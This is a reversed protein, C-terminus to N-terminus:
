KDVEPQRQTTDTVPDDSVVGSADTRVDEATFLEPPVHAVVDEVPLNKEMLLQAALQNRQDVLESINLTEMIKDVPVVIAIGMNVSEQSIVDQVFDDSGQDALDWHGHMLGLLRVDWKFLMKGGLISAPGRYVFVPSGSLGGISRCEILYADIRGKWDTAVPEEPMAAINGVRVIPINRKEGTHERFLGTLFVENGIGFKKVESDGQKLACSEDCLPFTKHDMDRHLAIPIVAVDCREDTEHFKWDSLNTEIFKAGHDTLNVRLHVKYDCARDKIKEITHRATVLYEATREDNVKMSVFFATGALRPGRDPNTKCAVFAVCKRVEDPIDM